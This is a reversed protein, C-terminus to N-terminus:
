NVKKKPGAMKKIDGSLDLMLRGLEDKATQSIKEYWIIAQLKDYKPKQYREKCATVYGHFLLACMFDYNNKRTYADIQWFEIQLDRCLSELAGLNFLIEVDKESYGGFIKNRFALKM